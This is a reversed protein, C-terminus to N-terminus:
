SVIYAAVCVDLRQILHHIQAQTIDINKYSMVAASRRNGMGFVSLLITACIIMLKLPSEASGNCHRWLPPSPTEFWRRRSHKSLRKNLHVDLCMLSFMLAGRWQGKHPSDVPVPPNGESLALLASFTEIQQRWWAATHAIIPLLMRYKKLIRNNDM